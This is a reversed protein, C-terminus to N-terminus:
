KTETEYDGIIEIDKWQDPYVLMCVTRYKDDYTEVCITVYEDCVFEIFGTNNKYKVQIGKVFSM